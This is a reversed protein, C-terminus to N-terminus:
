LIFTSYYMYFVMIFLKLKKKLYKIKNRKLHTLIVRLKNSADAHSIHVRNGAKEATHLVVAM